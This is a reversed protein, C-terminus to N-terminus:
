LKLHLNTNVILHGKEYKHHFYKYNTDICEKQNNILNLHQFERLSMNSQYTHIDVTTNSLSNLGM